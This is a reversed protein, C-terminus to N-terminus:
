CKNPMGIGCFCKMAEPNKVTEFRLSKSFLNDFLVNASYNYYMRFQPTLGVVGAKPFKQFINYSAKQWGTLFLTDADAITILSFRHGCVGKLIANLKGTNYTHIIEQVHDKKYLSDLFNEIEKCSGNNVVTIFTNSHCTKFLSELCLKLVEFSEEYYDGLKPIYIPLVVQHFFDPQPVPQEKSPNRGVRM